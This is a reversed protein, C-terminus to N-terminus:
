CLSMVKKRGEVESRQLDKLRLETLDRYGLSAFLRSGNGLAQRHDGILHLPPSAVSKISSQDRCGKKKKPCLKLEVSGKNNNSKELIILEIILECVCM